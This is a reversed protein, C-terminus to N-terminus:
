LSGRFYANIVTIFEQLSRIVAYAYGQSVVFAEFEKQEKSQTGDPTKTELYLGHKGFSPVPLFLDAIGRKVGEAKLKMAVAIHRQGGNPIAHLWKLRPDYVAAKICQVQIYHEEQKSM